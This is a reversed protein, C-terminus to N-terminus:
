ANCQHNSSRHLFFLNFLSVARLLVTLELIAQSPKHFKRHTAHQKGVNTCVGPETPLNTKRGGEGKM